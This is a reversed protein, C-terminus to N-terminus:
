LNIKAFDYFALVEYQPCHRRWEVKNYLMKHRKNSCVNYHKINDMYNEM